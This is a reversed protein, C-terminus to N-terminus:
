LKIAPFIVATPHLSYFWIPANPAHWTAELRQLQMLARQNLKKKGNARAVAHEVDARRRASTVGGRKPGRASTAKLGARTPPDWVRGPGPSDAPFYNKKEGLSPSPKVAPTARLAHGGSCWVQAFPGGPLGNGAGACLM